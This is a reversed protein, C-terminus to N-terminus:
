CCDDPPNTKGFPATKISTTLDFPKTHKSTNELPMEAEFLKYLSNTKDFM